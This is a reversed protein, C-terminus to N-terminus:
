IISWHFLLDDSLNVHNLNNEQLDMYIESTLECAYEWSVCLNVLQPALASQYIDQNLTDIHWIINQGTPKM